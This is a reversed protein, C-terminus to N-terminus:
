VCKVMILRIVLRKQKHYFLKSGVGGGSGGGM